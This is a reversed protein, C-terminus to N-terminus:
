EAAEPTRWKWRELKGYGGLGFVCLMLDKQFPTPKGRADFCAPREEAGDRFVFIMRGVSLTLAREFVNDRYWNAGVSAPVLMAIPCSESAENACLRAWPAINAFPPNLWAIGGPRGLSALTAGVGATLADSALGGPGLWSACVHNREHAAVDLVISGFRAEVADLFARPTAYDQPGGSSGSGRADGTM